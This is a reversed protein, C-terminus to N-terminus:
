GVLEVRVCARVCACACACVCVHVCAHVCECVCMCTCMCVCVCVCVCMRRVAAEWRSCREKDGHQFDLSGKKKGLLWCCMWPLYVYYTYQLDVSRCAIKVVLPHHSLTCEILHMRCYIAPLWTAQVRLPVGIMRFILTM